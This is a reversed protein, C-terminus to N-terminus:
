GRFVTYTRSDEIAVVVTPEGAITNRCRNAILCHPM